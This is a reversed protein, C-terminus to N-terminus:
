RSCSQYNWYVYNDSPTARRSLVHWASGAPQSSLLDRANQRSLDLLAVRLGDPDSLVAEIISVVNM